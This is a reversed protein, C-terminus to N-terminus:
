VPFSAVWLLPPPPLVFKTWIWFNATYTFGPTDPPHLPVSSMEERLSPPAEPVSTNLAHVVHHPIVLTVSLLLELVGVLDGLVEGVACGLVFGVAGAGRVGAGLSAGVPVGVREGDCAGDDAGVVRVGVDIGVTDWKFATFLSTLRAISIEAIGGADECRSANSVVKLDSTATSISM